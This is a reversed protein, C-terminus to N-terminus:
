KALPSYLGPEASPSRRIAWSSAWTTWCRPAALVPGSVTELGPSASSVSASETASEIAQTNALHGLRDAEVEDIAAHHGRHLPDGGVVGVRGVREAAEVDGVLGRQLERAPLGRRAGVVPEGGDRGREPQVQEVGRHEGGARRRLEVRAEAAQEGVQLVVDGALERARPEDAVQQLALADRAASTIVHKSTSRGSRRSPATLSSPSACVGSASRGRFTASRSAACRSPARSSSSGVGVRSRSTAAGPARGRGGRGRRRPRRSARAGSRGARRATRARRRPAARSPRRGGARRRARARCPAARRSPRRPASRRARPGASRRRPARPGRGPRARAPQQAREVLAALAGHDGRGDRPAVSASPSRM